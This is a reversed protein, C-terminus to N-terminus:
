VNEWVVSSATVKKEIKAVVFTKGPHSTALRHAETAADIGSVHQRPDESFSLVGNTMTGVIWIGKQEDRM